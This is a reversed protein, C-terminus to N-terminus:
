SRQFIIRNMEVCRPQQPRNLDHSETKTDDILHRVDDAAVCLYGLLDIAGDVPPHSELLQRLAVQDHQELLTEVRRRYGDLDLPKGIKRIADHVESDDEPQEAPIPNFHATERKQFFNLEMLNAWAIGEDLEIFDGDPPSARRMLAAKKITGISEMLRRTDQHTTEEAVRRLQSAIRQYSEQAVMVRELLREMLHTFVQDDTGAEAALRAADAVWLDLEQRTEMSRILRRFGYYSRGQESDRLVQDADLAHAIIDGKSQGQELYNAHIENAQEKFHDEISRFDSLFAEIMQELDILRDKVQSANLTEVTGTERIRHIELDIADRQALLDKERARPDEKTQQSLVKFENYIRSFRSETTMHGHKEGTQLERLWQLAKESHRTLQYLFCQAQESYVKRLYGHTDRCWLNLYNRARNEVPGENEDEKRGALHKELLLELEEEGVAQLNREKFVEHFFGLVM